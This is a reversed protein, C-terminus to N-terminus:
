QIMVTESTTYNKYAKYDSLVDSSSNLASGSWPIEVGEPLAFIEIRTIANVKISFTAKYLEGPEVDIPTYLNQSAVTKNLVAYGGYRSDDTEEITKNFKYQLWTIKQNQEANVSVNSVGLTLLLSITLVISLVKKVRTKFKM